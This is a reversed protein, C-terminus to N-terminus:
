EDGVMETVDREDGVTEREDWEGGVMVMEDWEHGVMVMADWEGGVMERGSIDDGGVRWDGKEDEVVLVGAQEGYKGEERENGVVKKGDREYGAM